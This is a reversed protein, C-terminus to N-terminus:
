NSLLPGLVSGHPVGSKVQQWSSYTGNVKVRQLKNKLYSNMLNLSELSFDYAELKGLLLDLPICDYAKSLDM